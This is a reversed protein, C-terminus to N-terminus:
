ILIYDSEIRYGYREGFDIFRKRVEESQIQSLTFREAGPKRFSNINTPLVVEGSLNLRKLFPGVEDEVRYTVVPQQAVIMENWRLYYLCARDYNPMAHKLEPLHSYIFEEYGNTPSNSSFYGLNNCFSNVVRVPHRILHITCCGELLSESLYPVAMYSSEAEIRCPDPLWTPLQTWKGLDYRVTSVYSLGPPDYGELKRKAKEWGHYDFISEHGCPVGLSTLLRALYVTGCRGTGTVLYKLHVM